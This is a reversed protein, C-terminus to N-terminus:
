CVRPRVAVLSLLCGMKLVQLKEPHLSSTRVQYCSNLVASRFCVGETLVPGTGKEDEKTHGLPALLSFTPDSNGKQHEGVDDSYFELHPLQTCANAFTDKGGEEAKKDAVLILLFLDLSWIKALLRGPSVLSGARGM